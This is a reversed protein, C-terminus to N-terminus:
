HNAKLTQLTVNKLTVTLELLGSTGDSANTVCDPVRVGSKDTACITAVGLYAFGVPQSGFLAVLDPNGRNTDLTKFDMDSLRNMTRRAQGTLVAQEEGQGTALLAPAFANMMPVIAIALILLTLIIEFLTFGWSNHIIHDTPLSPRKMILSRSNIPLQTMGMCIPIWFELITGFEKIGAEAPIVILTSLARV